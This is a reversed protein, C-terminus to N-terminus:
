PGGVSVTDAVFGEGWVLAAGGQWAVRLAAPGAHLADQHDAQVFLRVMGATACPVAGQWRTADAVHPSLAGTPGQVTWSAVPYTATITVDLMGTAIDAPPAAPVPTQAPPAGTALAVAGFATVAFAAAALLRLPAGATFGLADTRASAQPSM